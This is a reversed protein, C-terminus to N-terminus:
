WASKVWKEGVKTWQGPAPPPPVVGVRRAAISPTTTAGYSVASPLAVSVPAGHKWWRRGKRYCARCRGASRSKMGMCRPCITTTTWRKSAKTLKPLAAAVDAAAKLAPTSAVRIATGLGDGSSM